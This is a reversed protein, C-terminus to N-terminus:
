VQPNYWSAFPVQRLAWNSGRVGEVGSLKKVKRNLFVWM